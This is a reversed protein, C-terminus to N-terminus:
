GRSATTKHPDTFRDASSGRSGPIRPAAPPPLPASRRAMRRHGRDPVSASAKPHPSAPRRRGPILRQWTAGSNELEMDGDIDVDMDSAMFPYATIRSTSVGALQTVHRKSRHVERQGGLELLAEFRGREGLPGGNRREALLPNKFPQLAEICGLESVRIFHATVRHSCSDAGCAGFWERELLSLANSLLDSLLGTTWSSM